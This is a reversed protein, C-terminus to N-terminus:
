DGGSGDYSYRINYMNDKHETFLEASKAFWDPDNETLRQWYLGWGELFKTHSESVVYTGANWEDGWNHMLQGWSMFYGEDVLGNLVPTFVSDQMANWEPLKSYPVIFSLVTLHPQGAPADDEQAQAPLSTAAFVLALCIIGLKQM